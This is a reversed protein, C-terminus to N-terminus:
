LPLGLQAAEKLLAEQGQLLHPGTPRLSPQSVGGGRGRERCTPATEGWLIFAESHVRSCASLLRRPSSSRRPCLSCSSASSRTRASCPSCSTPPLLQPRRPRRPLRPLPEPGGRCPLLFFAAEQLLAPAQVLSHDLQGLEHSLVLHRQVPDEPGLLLGPPHGFRREGHRRAGKSPLEQQGRPSSQVCWPISGRGPPGTVM